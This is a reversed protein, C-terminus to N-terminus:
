YICFIYNILGCIATCMDNYVFWYYVNCSESEMSTQTCYLEFLSLMEGAILNNLPQIGTLSINRLNYVQYARACEFSYCVVWLSCWM